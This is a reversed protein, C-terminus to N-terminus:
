GRYTPLLGAGGPVSPRPPRIFFKHMCFLNGKVLDQNGPKRVDFCQAADKGNAAKDFFDAGSLPACSYFLQPREFGLVLLLAELGSSSQRTLASHSM